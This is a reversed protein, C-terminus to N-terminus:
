NPSNASTRAAPEPAPDLIGVNPLDSEDEVPASARATNLSHTVPEGLRRAIESAPEGAAAGSRVARRKAAHDTAHAAVPVPATVMYATPRVVQTAEGIPGQPAATPKSITWVALALGIAAPLAVATAIAMVTRASSSQRASAKSGVAPVAPKMVAAGTPGHRMVRPSQSKPRAPTQVRLAQLYAEAASRDFGGADELRQASGAM